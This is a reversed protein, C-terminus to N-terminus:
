KKEKLGVIFSAVSDIEEPSLIINPMKPHSSRLFVKLSLENASPMRSIDTFSPAVPTKDGPASAGIKHCVSCQKEALHRGISPDASQAALPSPLLISFIPALAFIRQKMKQEEPLYSAFNINLLGRWARAQLFGQAKDPAGPARKCDAAELRFLFGEIM